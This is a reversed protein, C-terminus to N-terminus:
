SAKKTTYTAETSAEAQRRLADQEEMWKQEIERERRAAKQANLWEEHALVREREREAEWAKERAAM